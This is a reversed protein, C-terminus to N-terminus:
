SGHDFMNEFPQSSLDKDIEQSVEEFDFQKVTKAVKLATSANHLVPKLQNIIPIIQNITYLTKQATQLTTSLSMQNLSYKMSQLLSPKYIIPPYPYQFYPDQNPYQYYM